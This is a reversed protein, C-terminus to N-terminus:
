EDIDEKKIKNAQKSTHYFMNRFAAAVGILMMIITFLPTKKTTNDLFIGIFTCILIPTIMVIGLQTIMTVGRIWTKRKMGCRGKKILKECEVKYYFVLFIM